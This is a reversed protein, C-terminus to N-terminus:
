LHRVVDWWQCSERMVDPRDLRDDTRDGMPDSRRCHPTMGTSCAVGPPVVRMTTIPPPNPPTVVTRCRSRMKRRRLSTQELCAGAPQLHPVARLSDAGGKTARAEDFGGDFRNIQLLLENASDSRIANSEGQWEVM